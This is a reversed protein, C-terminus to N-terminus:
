LPRVDVTLRTEKLKRRMEIDTILGAQAGTQALVSTANITGTKLATPLDEGELIAWTVGTCFADGAGTTDIVTSGQIAPCHYLARGDSAHCGNAGDSICVMAAGAGLLAKIAGPVSKKGTFSFAEEKNLLLLSTRELLAANDKGLMGQTLQRGGPNWTIGLTRNKRLVDVIDDQIVCSKEHIHNFVIWDARLAAAKDFTADHLHANAGTAYLIVREGSDVNLIISFSSMEDEVVTAPSVDVGEKRLNELIRQGWQDSGVIGCFATDCGLRRLGVATNTAGGGCTEVVDHVRVKKGVPLLIAQKDCDVCLADAGTRVFLDYTAGGVTLVRRKQSRTRAPM